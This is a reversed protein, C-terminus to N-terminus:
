RWPDKDDSKEDVEKVLGNVFTNGKDSIFIDLLLGNFAENQILSKLEAMSEIEFGCSHVTKKSIYILEGELPTRFYYMQKDFLGTQIEVKWAMQWIKNGSKAQVAEVEVVKGVYSGKPLDNSKKEEWKAAKWNKDELTFVDEM